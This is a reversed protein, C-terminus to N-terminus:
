MIMILRIEKNQFFPLLSILDGKQRDTYGDTDTWRDTDGSIKTLLSILDGQQRHTQTRRGRIKYILNGQQRYIVGIM